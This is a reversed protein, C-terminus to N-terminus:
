ALDVKKLSCQEIYGLVNLITAFILSIIFVVSSVYISMCTLMVSLGISIFIFEYKQFIYGTVNFLLVFVLIASSILSFEKLAQAAHTAWIVEGITAEAISADLNSPEIIHQIYDSYRLFEPLALIFLLISVLASVLLIKSRSEIFSKFKKM